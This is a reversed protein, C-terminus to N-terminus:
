AGGGEFPVNNLEPMCSSVSCYQYARFWYETENQRQGTTQRDTRGDTQKACLSVDYIVASRRLSALQHTMATKILEAATATTPHDVTYV